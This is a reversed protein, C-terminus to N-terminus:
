RNVAAITAALQQLSEQVAKRIREDDLDKGRSNM